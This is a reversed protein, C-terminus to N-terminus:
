ANVDHDIMGQSDLYLLFDLVKNNEHEYLDRQVLKKYLSKNSAANENSYRQPIAVKLGNIVKVKANPNTQLQNSLEHLNKCKNGFRCKRNRAFFKCVTQGKKPEAPAESKKEQQQKLKAEVNKRTPWNKRREEIWKAIDEETQLTISTGEIFIPEATSVPKDPTKVPPEEKTTETNKGTAESPVSPMNPLHTPLDGLDMTFKPKKSASTNEGSRSRKVSPSPGYNYDM